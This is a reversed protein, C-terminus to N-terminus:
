YGPFMIKQPNEPLVSEPAGFSGLICVQAERPNVCTKQWRHLWLTRLRGEASPGMKLCTYKILGANAQTRGRAHFWWSQRKGLFGRQVQLRFADSVLM